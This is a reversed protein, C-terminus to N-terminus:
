KAAVTRDVALKSIPAADFDKDLRPWRLKDILDDLTGNPPVLKDRIAPTLDASEV